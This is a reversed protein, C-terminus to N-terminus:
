AGYIDRLRRTEQGEGDRLFVPSLVRLGSKAGKVAEVLAVCAERDPKGHAFCLKKPELRASQLAAFLEALRRAPFCLCFVGGNKLLASAGRCVAAVDTETERVAGDRAPAAAPANEKQYPPNALALDYGGRGLLRFASELPVAHVRVRNELGCLRAGRCARDAAAPDIEVADFRVGAVRACVLLPLVGSGSCLDVAKLAGVRGQAAFAALLVSDGGFRFGDPRQLVFMGDRQLDDLREGALVPVGRFREM